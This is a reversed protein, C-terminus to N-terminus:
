HETEQWGIQHWGCVCILVVRKSPTRILMGLQFGEGLQTWISIIQAMQTKTSTDLYRSMRVKSNETIQTCRGNQGPHLSISCRRSTRSMRTTKVYFGISKCGDNTISIIRTLYISRLIRFWGECHWRPTRSSRQTKSINTGVGFEQSSLPGNIVRLARNQRREKSWRDGRKTESKRWSGHLYKKSNKGNKRWQQKRMQNKMAKPMLIFKHVLNYHNLSNIGKGAIYDEHDKHPTGELRKRTSEDAEVICAHTNQRTLMLLAVLKRASEEGSRALCQQQCRFKWSKRRLKLLKNSSWMQQILSTFVACDELKTLSRNKSLGSRSKKANRQKQCTKGYRQGCTTLGPHRKNGQWGSGSWTRGDPTQEDLITFRTFGTWSDALDRNGEINWYDDIRRELMVDLTTSTATTVAIYRLPIPFSDESPVNLKVRPEVHHRHIINGSMSWFDNIAEGDDPKSDQLPASSGDSEGLLNEQEEGRDQRDQVSTSTRLVQDGGSLKVTGDAIPFSKKSWENRRLSDGLMSKLHTWRKWTRLTQSWLLRRELNRGSIICLRPINRTRSEQRVSATAVPRQYFYPSRRGDFLVSNSTRQKAWRIAAAWWKEDLGSQLLAASTGEKIRRVAREGFGNTESRHPKSTCHNWSLDECAKGFELSNDTYVVKPKWTPEFFKQWSKETEQFTKTKCPYSQIWQTALDQVVVACRPNNRLECGESLVKHDATILDGFFEARPIAAGTRKRRPVRTIKTRMCIDFNRDKPVHTEISHKGLVVKGWPESASERSSSAPADRHASCMWGCSEGHIRRVM